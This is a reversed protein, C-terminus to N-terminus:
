RSAVQWASVLEPFACRECLANSHDCFDRTIQMLGQQEAATKLFTPKRGRLLRTRGEKLVQNDQSAPWQSYRQRVRTAFLENQSTVARIWLWPLIVNIALDTARANGLLTQPTVAPAARFNWHTAWFDGAEVELIKELSEASASPSLGDALWTELRAIMRHDSLWAAALALRRAPHNVPRMGATQWTERPLRQDALADAERWWHDWLTRAHPQMPQTSSSREDPLLRGLGLLRAETANRSVVEGPWPVLEALRRMPWVNNRYGLAALLFEWLAQEWGTDRARAQILAAKREVRVWAAQQLLERLAEDSLNALPASCQGVAASPSPLNEGSIWEILEPLPADLVPQMVLTPISGAPQTGQWIVHLVVDTYRPNNHHAHGRWFVAELDIEISGVVPSQHGIQVIARSFDPGPGSNWFGPHLIRLPRGDILQLSDRRIRQHLWLKQLVAEPPHGANADALVSPDVLRNSRWRSYFSSLPASLRGNSKPRRRLLTM